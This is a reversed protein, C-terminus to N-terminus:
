GAETGSGRRAVLALAVWGVWRGDILDHCNHAFGAVIAVAM